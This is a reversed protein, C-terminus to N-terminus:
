AGVYDRIDVDDIQSPALYREAYRRYVGSTLFLDFLDGDIHRRRKFSALIRVAESLRKAKKYPRDSATLAEFIDAIAMIRAPVSLQREDLRRPYGTGTLTEHHTGAYEGVRSLNPPFPLQDLMVITQVIHENIKYREEATLTGREISLNYLEGFNYLHDPVDMKFGYRPDYRQAETRAIIHNPKDQLLTERTPLAPAPVGELRSEEDHSLGLRDDFHRMWTQAGIEKLRAVQEVPMSESGINCEAVLAFDAMLRARRAEYAAQLAAPDGGQQVGELQAIRADRLLVEFRTRIEHIRNHLTELKTAKDVVHEPTTVKGCDHLWTGIRFETWEDETQFSFSALPGKQVHCAEEALMRALEPVRACHAGTHASKTDIAGAILRILSEMLERQQRLLELNELAIGSQSVLTQVYRLGSPAFSRAAEGAADRANVLALVGLLKNGRALVPVAMFGRPLEGLLQQQASLDFGAESGTLLLPDHSVAVWACPDAVVGAQWGRPMALGAHPVAVRADPAEAMGAVAALTLSGEGDALWFQAAQAGVLQRASEATHRLVEDHTRRASLQVGNEVLRALRGMAEDLAKSRERIATKMTHHARGLLDIEYFVSRVPEDGSFDMRQIRKSERTLADLTGAIRRAMLFVLPMCILLTIAAFVMIDDRAQRIQASYLSMPSFAVVHLMDAPTIPVARNAYAFHEGQVKVIRSGDAQSLLPGAAAFYPNGLGDVPALTPVIQGVFRQEAHAALVQGDPGTVILGGDLGRLSAAAFGELGRLAVDAGFVGAGGELAQSLTLGLDRLSDYVYPESVQLGPRARATAYWQRARPVYAARQEYEALVAEDEDVFTWTERRRFDPTDPMIHRIAFATGPPAQLVTTVEPDAHVGIVQLFEDNEMGYFFSYAQPTTRLTAILMPVLSARDLRDHLFLQRTNRRAQQEVTRRVTELTAQLPDANRQAVQSFLTQASDRAMTDFKSALISLTILALLIVFATLLITPLLYFRVKWKPPTHM